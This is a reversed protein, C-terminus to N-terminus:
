EPDLRRIGRRKIEERKPTFDMRRSSAMTTKAMEPFKQESEEELSLRALSESAKLIGPRQSIPRLELKESNEKPRASVHSYKPSPLPIQPSQDRKAKQLDNRLAAVQEQLKSISQDKVKLASEATAKEERLAKITKAHKQVTTTLNDSAQIAQALEWDVSDTQIETNARGYWSWYQMYELSDLKTRLEFRYVKRFTNENGREVEGEFLPDAKPANKFYHLWKGATRLSSFNLDLLHDQSEKIVIDFEQQATVRMNRVVGLYEDRLQQLIAEQDHYAAIISAELDELYKLSAYLITQARQTQPIDSMLRMWEEQSTIVDLASLALGFHLGGQTIATSFHKSQCSACVKRLPFSCMCVMSSIENHCDDCTANM